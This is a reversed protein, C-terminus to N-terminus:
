FEVICCEKAQFLSMVEPWELDHALCRPFDEEFSKSGARLGAFSVGAMNIMLIVVLELIDQPDAFM